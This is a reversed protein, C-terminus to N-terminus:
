LRRALEQVQYIKGENGAIRQLFTHEAEEFSQIQIIADEPMLDEAAKICATFLFAWAAPETCGALRHSRSLFLINGGCREALLCATLEKDEQYFHSFRMDQGDMDMYFKESRAREMFRRLRVDQNNPITVARKLKDGELRELMKSGSFASFPYEYMKGQFSMPIFKEHRLFGAVSEDTNCMRVTVARIGTSRLKSRGYELLGHGYGRRRDKEPVYIYKLIAEDRHFPVTAFAAVCEMKGRASCGGIVLLAGRKAMEALSDPLIGRYATGQPPLIVYNM